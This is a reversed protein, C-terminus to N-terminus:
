SSTYMSKREVFDELKRVQDEWRYHAAVFRRGAAAVSRSFEPEDILRLISDVMQEGSDAIMIETGAQAGIANNVMTTTVCPLGMAMAELIKNQLGLGSFMPAVFIRGKSYAERIDPMWGLVRIGTRNNLRLLRKAPRAGVVLLSLERGKEHLLPLLQQTLFQVAEINPGYGLNGVFVLDYDPHLEWEKELFSEDVGNPIVAIQRTSALSLRNRDQESIITHKDFDKYVSREYRALRRAEWSFPFGFLGYKRAL